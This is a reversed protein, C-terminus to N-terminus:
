YASLPHPSLRPSSLSGVNLKTTFHTPLLGKGKSSYSDCPILLILIILFGLKWITSLLPIM